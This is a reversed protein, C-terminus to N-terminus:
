ERLLVRGGTDAEGGMAGIDVEGDTDGIVVTDGIGGRWGPGAAANSTTGAVSLALMAAAVVHGLPKRV